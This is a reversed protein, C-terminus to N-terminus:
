GSKFPSIALVDYWHGSVVYGVHIAKGDKGDQYMKDIHQVGHYEALEKRPHKDIFIKNGYQDIAIFKKYM